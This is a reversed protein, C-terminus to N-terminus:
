LQLFQMFPGRIQRKRMHPGRFESFSGSVTSSWCWQIDGGNIRRTARGQENSRSSCFEALRAQFLAGTTSIQTKLIETEPLIKRALLRRHSGRPRVALVHGWKKVDGILGCPHNGESRGLNTKTLKQDKKAM